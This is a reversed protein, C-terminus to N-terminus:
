ENHTVLSPCSYLHANDLNLFGSSRNRVGRVEGKPALLRMPIFKSLFFLWIGSTTEKPVSWCTKSDESSLTLHSPLVFPNNILM